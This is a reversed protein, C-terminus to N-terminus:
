NARGDRLINCCRTGTAASSSTLQHVHVMNDYPQCVQLLIVISSELRALRVKDWAVALLELDKLVRSEGPGVLGILVALSNFQAAMHGCTGTDVTTLIHLRSMRVLHTRVASTNYLTCGERSLRTSM